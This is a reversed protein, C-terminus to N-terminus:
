IVGDLNEHWTRDLADLGDLEVIYRLRDVAPPLMGDVLSGPVVSPFTDDVRFCLTEIERFAPERRPTGTDDDGTDSFDYGAEALKRLFEVEDVAPEIRDILSRLRDGVPKTDL